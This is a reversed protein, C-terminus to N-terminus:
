VVLVTMHLLLRAVRAVAYPPMADTSKQGIINIMTWQTQTIGMRLVDM